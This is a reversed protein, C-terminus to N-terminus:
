AVKKLGVWFLNHWQSLMKGNPTRDYEFLSYSIKTEHEHPYLHMVMHKTYELISWCILSFNSWSFYSSAM